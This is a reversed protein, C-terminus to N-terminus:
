ILTLRKQVGKDWLDGYMIKKSHIYCDGVLTWLKEPGVVTAKRVVLPVNVGRAVVISDGKMMGRPAMGFLGNTSVFFRRGEASATVATAFRENASTDLETTSGSVYGKFVAQIMGLHSSWKFITDHKLLGLRRFKRHTKMIDDEAWAKFDAECLDSGDEAEHDYERGSLLAQRWAEGVTETGERGHDQQDKLNNSPYPHSWREPEAGALEEWELIVKTDERSRQLFEAFSLVQGHEHFRDLVRGVDKVKMLCGIATITLRTGDESFWFPVHGPIVKPSPTFASAGDIATMELSLSTDGVSWDPVWSPLQSAIPNGRRDPSPVRLINLSRSREMIAVAVDRYVDTVSKSYDPM